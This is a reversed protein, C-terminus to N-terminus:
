HSLGLQAQHIKSYVFNLESFYDGTSFCIGNRSCWEVFENGMELMMDEDTLDQEWQRYQFSKLLCQGRLVDVRCDGNKDQKIAVSHRCTNPRPYRRAPMNGSSEPKTPITSFM